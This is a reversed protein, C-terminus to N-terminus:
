LTCWDFDYGFINFNFGISIYLFFNDIAAATSFYFYRAPM